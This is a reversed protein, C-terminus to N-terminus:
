DVKEIKLRLRFYDKESYGSCPCYDTHWGGNSPIDEYVLGSGIDAPKYFKRIDGMGDTECGGLLVKPTFLTRKVDAVLNRDCVRDPDIIHGFIKDSGDVERGDASIRFSSDQPVYVYFEKNIEWNSKHTKGFGENLIDKVPVFDNYFIYSGGVELFMRFECKNMFDTFKNIKLNNLTVKYTNVKFNEATGNGEDWYLYVTQALIATDNVNESHWPVNIVIGPSEGSETQYKINGFFSNGKRNEVKYKLVANASPKPLIHKVKFVYDKASMKVRHTYSATIKRNNYFPNGDGNAFIDIRTAFKKTGNVEIRDPLKRRTVMVRAPHIETKAPQHGRDWVYLGEVHTWDGETPWNWIVDGREHGASSFGCSKGQRNLEACINGDNGGALGSEWEVHINQKSLTDGKHGGKRDESLIYYPVLHQYEKDPYLHFTFDTTYHYLPLDGDTVSPHKAIGEIVTMSDRSIVPPWCPFIIGMDVIPIKFFLFDMKIKCSSCNVESEACNHCEKFSVPQAQLSYPYLSILFYLFLSIFPNKNSLKSILIIFISFLPIM